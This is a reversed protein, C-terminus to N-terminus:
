LIQLLLLLISLFYQWVKFISKLHYHQDALSPPLYKGMCFSKPSPCTETYVGSVKRHKWLHKMGSSKLVMGRKSYTWKSDDFEFETGLNVRGFHKSIRKLHLCHRLIKQICHYLVKHQSAQSHSTHILLPHNSPM